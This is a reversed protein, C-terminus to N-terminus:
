GNGGEELPRQPANLVASDWDPPGTYPKWHKLTLRDRRKMKQLIKQAKGTM